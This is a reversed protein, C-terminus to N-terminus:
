EAMEGPEDGEIACHLRRLARQLAEEMETDAREWLEEDETQEDVILQVKSRQSLRPPAPPKKRNM